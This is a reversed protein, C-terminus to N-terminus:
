RPGDIGGKSASIMADSDPAFFDPLPGVAVEEGVFRGLSEILSAHDDGMEGTSRVHWRERPAARAVLYESGEPILALAEQVFSESSVGRLPLQRHEFVVIDTGVPVRDVLAFFEKPTRCFVYDKNGAARLYRLVVFVEGTAEIWRAVRALFAESIDRAPDYRDM